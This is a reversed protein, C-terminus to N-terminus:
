FVLTWFIECDRALLSCGVADACIWFSTNIDQTWFIEYDCALLRHIWLISASGYGLTLVTHGCCKVIVSLGTWQSLMTVLLCLIFAVVRSDLSNNAARATSLLLHLLYSWRHKGFHMAKFFSTHRIDMTKRTQVSRLFATM